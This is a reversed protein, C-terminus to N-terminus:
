EVVEWAERVHWRRSPHGAVDIGFRVANDFVVGGQAAVYHRTVAIIFVAEHAQEALFRELTPHPHPPPLCAVVERLWYGRSAMTGILVDSTLGRIGTSAPRGRVANIWGRVERCDAGTVAAIASPGCYFGAPWIEHLRSAM